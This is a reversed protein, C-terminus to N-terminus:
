TSEWLKKEKIGALHAQLDAIMSQQIRIESEIRNAGATKQYIDTVWRSVVRLHRAEKSDIKEFINQLVDNSLVDFGRNSVGSDGNSEERHYQSITENMSLKESEKYAIESEMQDVIVKVKLDDQKFDDIKKQKGVPRGRMHMPLRAREKEPLYNKALHIWILNILRVIELPLSTLQNDNISFDILNTLQGIEPPLNILQNDNLFLEELNRLTGIESPLSTLQNHSLFMWTLGTLQAIEVPLSTLKNRDIYLQGLNVLRGIEVPLSKLQNDSLFLVNLNTLEGIEKPLSILMLGSLDLFAASEDAKGEQQAVYCKLIRKAAELRQGVDAGESLWRTLGQEINQMSIPKRSLTKIDVPGLNFTINKLEPHIAFRSKQPKASIKKSKIRM